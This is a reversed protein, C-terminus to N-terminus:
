TRNIRVGSTPSITAGAFTRSLFLTPMYTLFIVYSFFWCIPDTLCWWRTVSLVNTLSTFASNALMHPLGPSRDFPRAPTSSAFCSWHDDLRRFLNSLREFQWSREVAWNWAADRCKGIFIHKSRPHRTLTCLCCASFSCAASDCLDGDIQSHVCVRPRWVRDVKPIKYNKDCNKLLM